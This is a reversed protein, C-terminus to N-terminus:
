AIRSTLPFRASVAFGGGSRPGARLTGGYLACRERMGVLGHGAGDTGDAAAGRGDDIVEVEIADICYRLEVRVHANPGAHKMVNTLSEQVVRYISLDVGPPLVRLDGSVDFTAPLGAEIVQEVLGQIADVGPQPDREAPGQEDRLVGLLARMERMADRGTSEVAALAADAQAPDRGLVRRAAGAQIVMVGVDHAVVDHLERAIRAREAAVAREAQEVRERELRVTREELATVYKRRTQLNDGLIWATAFVVTNSGIEALTMHDSADDAAVIAVIVPIVAALVWRSVTRPRHAAVTYIAVLAPFAVPNSNYGRAALVLAAIASVAFLVLPWRRRVVVLGIVVASVVVSFVDHERYAHDAPNVGSVLALGALAVALLGDAAYPHAQLWRTPRHRRWWPAAAPLGAGPDGSRRM